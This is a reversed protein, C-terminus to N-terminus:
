NNIMFIKWVFYFFKMYYCNGQKDSKEQCERLFEQLAQHHTKVEVDSNEGQMLQDKYKQHIAEDIGQM